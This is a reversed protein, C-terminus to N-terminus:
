NAGGGRLGSIVEDQVHAPVEVYRDFALEFRGRGHTLARLDTSYRQVEALPVDAEIMSFRGEGEVGHVHGRKTSIDSMVDGVYDGPVHVKLKMVPELLVPHAELLGDKLAHSAATKFAMESSDVSHSSGDLLTVKVDVIPSHALPGEPLSENIGKEVAPIFQRPVNGGVVREAFEFGTGRTLPAIEIM